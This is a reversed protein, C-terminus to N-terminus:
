KLITVVRRNKSYCKETEASCVPVEEGCSVIKIKVTDGLLQKYYKEITRARREGLLFNYANTGRSDCHGEILIEDFNGAIELCNKVVKRYEEENIEASDFAFYITRMKIDEVKDVYGVLLESVTSEEPVEVASSEESVTIESEVVTSSNSLVKKNACGFFCMGVVMVVACSIMGYKM